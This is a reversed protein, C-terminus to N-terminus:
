VDAAGPHKSILEAMDIRIQGTLGLLRRRDGAPMPDGLAEIMDLMTDTFLRCFAVVEDRPVLKGAEKAMKQTIQEERRKALAREDASRGSRAPDRLFSIYAQVTKVLPYQNRAAKPIHGTKVLQRIREDTLGLLAATQEMTMMGAQPTDAPEAKATM